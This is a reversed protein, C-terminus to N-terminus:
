QQGLYAGTVGHVGTALSSHRAVDTDVHERWRAAENALVVFFMGCVLLLECIRWKLGPVSFLPSGKATHIM